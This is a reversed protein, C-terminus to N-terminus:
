RLLSVGSATEAIGARFVRLYGFGAAMAPVALMILSSLVIVAMKM